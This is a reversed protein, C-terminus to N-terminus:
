KELGNIFYLSDHKDIKCCLSRRVSFDIIIINGVKVARTKKM